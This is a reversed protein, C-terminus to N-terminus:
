AVNARIPFLTRFRNNTNTLLRVKRTVRCEVSKAVRRIITHHLQAHWGLYPLLYEAPALLTDLLVVRIGVEERNTLRKCESLLCQPFM